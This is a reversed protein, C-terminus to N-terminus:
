PNFLLTFTEKGKVQLDGITDDLGLALIEGERWLGGIPAFVLDSLTESIALQHHLDDAGYFDAILNYVQANSSKLWNLAAREGNFPMQRILFYNQLLWYVNSALLLQCFVPDSTLRHRVKDLPHRHSFRLFATSHEKLEQAQPQWRSKCREILADLRNQPDYIIEGTTLAFDFPLLPSERNIEDFTRINMDVPIAQVDFHLSEIDNVREAVVVFLDFDGGPKMDDVTRRGYRVIGVVLPNSVLSDIVAQLDLFM